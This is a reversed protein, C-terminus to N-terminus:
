YLAAARAAKGDGLEGSGGEGGTGNRRAGGKGVLLALVLPFWRPRTFLSTGGSGWASIGSGLLPAASAPACCPAPLHGSDKRSVRRPDGPGEQMESPLLPDQMM